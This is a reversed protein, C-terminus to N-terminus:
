AHLDLETGNSLRYTISGIGLIRYPINVGLKVGGLDFNKLNKFLAKKPTMHFSCGLNLIWGDKGPEVSVNMVHSSEYGDSLDDKPAFSSKSSHSADGKKRKWEPCDRKLHKEFNCVYCKRKFKSKSRSVSGKHKSM